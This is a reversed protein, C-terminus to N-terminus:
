RHSKEYAVPDLAFDLWDSGTSHKTITMPRLHLVGKPFKRVLPAQMRCIAPRNRKPKKM